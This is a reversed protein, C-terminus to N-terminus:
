QRAGLVKTIDLVSMYKVNELKELSAGPYVFDKGVFEPPVGKYCLIRKYADRGRAQSYPLMGRIVRRVFRDPMRPFFPGKAPIGMERKRQYKALITDRKGSIVAKEANIVRVEEGLLAQKAVFTAMRGLIQNTADVIIM